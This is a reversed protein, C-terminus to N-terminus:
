WKESRLDAAPAYGAIFSIIKLIVGLPLGVLVLWVWWSIGSLSSGEGATVSIGPVRLATGVSQLPLASLATVLAAIILAVGAAEMVTFLVSLVLFLAGNYRKPVFAYVCFLLANLLIGGALLATGLILLGNESDPAAGNLQAWLASLNVGNYQLAAAGAAVLMLLSFLRIGTFLMAPLHRGEYAFSFGSYVSLLDVTPILLIVLGALVTVWVPYDTSGATGAVAGVVVALFCLWSFFLLKGLRALKTERYM